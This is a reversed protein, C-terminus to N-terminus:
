TQESPQWRGAASEQLLSFCASELVYEAFAQFEAHQFVKNGHGQESGEVTGEASQETIGPDVTSAAMDPATADGANQRKSSNDPGDASKGNPLPIAAQALFSGHRLEAWTPTDEELLGAIALAVDSGNVVEALIEELVSTAEHVDQAEALWSVTDLCCTKSFVAGRAEHRGKGM